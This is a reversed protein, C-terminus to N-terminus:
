VVLQHNWGMQFINTLKSWKGLYPHFYFMNSVVVWSNPDKKENSLFIVDKPHNVWQSWVKFPSNEVFVPRSKQNPDDYKWMLAVFSHSSKCFHIKCFKCCIRSNKLLYLNQTPNRHLDAIAFTDITTGIIRLWKMYFSFTRFTGCSCIFCQRQDTQHPSFDLFSVDELYATNLSGPTSFEMLFQRLVIRLNM